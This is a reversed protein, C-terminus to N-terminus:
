DDTKGLLYDTSCDFYSSLFLLTNFGCERTGNEWHAVCRPTVSAAEALESRAVEREERLEKLREPFKHM